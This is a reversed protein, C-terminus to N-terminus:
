GMAVNLLMFFKQLVKMPFSARTEMVALLESLSFASVTGHMEM